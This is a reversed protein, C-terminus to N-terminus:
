VQHQNIKCTPSDLVVADEEVKVLRGHSDSTLTRIYPVSVGDREETRVIGPQLVSTESELRSIHMLEAALKRIYMTRPVLNRRAKTRM